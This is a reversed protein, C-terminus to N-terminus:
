TPHLLVIHRNAHVPIPATAKCLRQALRRRVCSDLHAFPNNAGGVWEIRSSVGYQDLFAFEERMRTRRLGWMITEVQPYFISPPVPPFIGSEDDEYANGNVAVTLPAVAFLRESFTEVDGLISDELYLHRLRNNPRFEPVSTITELDETTTDFSLDLTNLKRCKWLIYAIASWTIMPRALFGFGVGIRLSMLFPWADAINRIADNDILVVLPAKLVLRRMSTFVLLPEFDTGYLHDEEILIWSKDWPGSICLIQLTHKVCYHRLCVFLYSLDEPKVRETVTLDLSHLQCSQMMRLLESCTSISPVDLWLKELAPFPYHTPVDYLFSLDVSTEVDIVLRVKRLYPQMALHCLFDDSWPEPSRVVFSELRPCRYAFDVAAEVISKPHHSVLELHTLTPCIDPLTSILSPSIPPDGPPTACGCSLHTIQSGVLLFPLLDAWVGDYKNLRVKVLHPLLIQRRRTLCLFWMVSRDVVDIQDVGGSEIHHFDDPVDSFENRFYGLEKVKSAYFDFRSWDSPGPPQTM